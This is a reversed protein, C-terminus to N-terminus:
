QVAPTEEMAAAAGKTKAEIAAACEKLDDLHALAIKEPTSASRFFIINVACMVAESCRIPLAIASIRDDSEGMSWTYGRGRFDEELRGIFRPQPLPENQLRAALEVMTRRRARPAALLAAKGLASRFLSRQRGVMGRHISFPSFRHTTEEIVMSGRDFVAFDSPWLIKSLLQGLERAAVHLIRDKEVYGNSLTQVGRLLYWSDDAPSCSVLGCEALTHLLRYVTTRDIGTISSIEGPRARGASNLAQLIEVGRKLARVPKYAEALPHSM